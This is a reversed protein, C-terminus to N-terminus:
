ALLEKVDYAQLAVFYDDVSLLGMCPMAGHPLVDGRALKQVLAISAGCPIHPGHNQAAVLHWTLKLAQGDMGIGELSVFMGGKDSVFPEM